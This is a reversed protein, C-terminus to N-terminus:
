HRNSNSINIAKRLVSIPNSFESLLPLNMTMQFKLRPVKECQPKPPSKSEPKREILSPFVQQKLLTSIYSILFLSLSTDSIEQPGAIVKPKFFPLKFCVEKKNRFQGQSSVITSILCLNLVAAQIIFMQNFSEKPAAERLHSPISGISSVRWTATLSCGSSM